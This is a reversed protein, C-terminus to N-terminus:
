FFLSNETKATFDRKKVPLPILATLSCEWRRSGLFRHGYV